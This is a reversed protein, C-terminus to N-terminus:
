LKLIRDLIPLVLLKELESICQCKNYKQLSPREKLVSGGDTGSLLKCPESNFVQVDYQFLSPEAQISM